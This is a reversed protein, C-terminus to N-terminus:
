SSAIAYRKPFTHCAVPSLQGNSKGETDTVWYSLFLIACQIRFPVLSLSEFKLIPKCLLTKVEVRQRGRAAM